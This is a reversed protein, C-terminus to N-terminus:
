PVLLEFVGLVKFDDANLKRGLQFECLWKFCLRMAQDTPFLQKTNQATWWATADAVAQKMTLPDRFRKPDTVVHIFEALVAPTIVVVNQRVERSLLAHAACHNAHERISLAVLFSTDLGIM